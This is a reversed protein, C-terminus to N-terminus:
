FGAERLRQVMNWMGELSNFNAPVIEVAPITIDFADELESVLAVITLSDLM